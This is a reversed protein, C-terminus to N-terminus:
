LGAMNWDGGVLMYVYIYISNLLVSIDSPNVPKSRCM